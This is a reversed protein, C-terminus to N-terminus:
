KRKLYGIVATTAAPTIGTMRMMAGITAPRTEQLREVIENSLGGIKRFDTDAPIKLAEDKRFADIDLQQRALYGHYRGEIELQEAVDAPTDALDPFARTLVKWDVDPYALMDFATRKQGGANVIFGKKQLEKSTYTKSQLKERMQNLKNKKETFAAARESGVCGFAMGLETLRLDANDARMTLRYEARSTFLRYPEDVGLTTIDDIMVGIYSDARDMILEKGTNLARHAANVGAVLGQGAAEEYGTTGNIQGALFLNPV